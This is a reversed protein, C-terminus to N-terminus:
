YKLIEELPEIEKYVHNIITKIDLKELLGSVQRGKIYVRNARKFLNMLKDYGNKGNITRPVQIRLFKCIGDLDYLFWDEISRIAKIQVVQNVGLKFCQKEVKEWDIPPKTSFEFIDTDYCFVVVFEKCNSGKIIRKLKMISDVKFGGAGRVNFIQIECNFRNDKHSSRFYPIIYRKYLEEETEGEVFIIVNKNM